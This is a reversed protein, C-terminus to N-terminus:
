PVLDFYLVQGDWGYDPKYILQLQGEDEPVIVCVNGTVTAGAFVEWDLSDPIVGCRTETEFPSYIIGRDGVIRYSSDDITRPTLTDDTANTVEVGVMLMRMGEAPPDNFQNEAQVRPWADFDVDLVRVVLGDATLRTQGWPVPSQRSTVPHTPTSSGPSPLSPTLAPNSSAVPALRTAAVAIETAREDLAQATAQLSRATLRSGEEQPRVAYLLAALIMSLGVIAVFLIIRERMSSKRQMQM